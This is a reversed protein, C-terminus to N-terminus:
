CQHLENVLQHAFATKGSGIIGKIVVLYPEEQQDESESYYETIDAIIGNM